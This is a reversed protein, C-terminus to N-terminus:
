NGEPDSENYMNPPFFFFKIIISMVYILFKLYYIKVIYLYCKINALKKSLFRLFNM